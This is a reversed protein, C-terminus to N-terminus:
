RIQNTTQFMNKKSYVTNPIVIGISQTSVVLWNDESLKTETPSNEQNEPHDSPKEIKLIMKLCTKTKAQKHLFLLLKM